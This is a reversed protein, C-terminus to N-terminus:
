PSLSRILLSWTRNRISDSIEQTKRKVNRSGLPQFGTKSQIHNTKMLNEECNPRFLLKVKDMCTVVMYKKTETFCILRRSKTTKVNHKKHRAFPMHMTFSILFDIMLSIIVFSHVDALLYISAVLNARQTIEYM